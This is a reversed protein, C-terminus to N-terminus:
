RGFILFDLSDSLELDISYLDKSFRSLIRGTPTTDFFSMPANLVSDLANKHLVNSAHIGFRALFFSRFFTFFGLTFAALAYIGLYFARSNREYNPDSTWYSVWATSFLGNASCFIFVVVIFFFQSFGGGALIYKKYVDWAVAGVNREEDSVIGENEKNADLKSDKKDMKGLSIISNSRARSSAEESESVSEKVIDFEELLRQVAGNNKSLEDYSGQELIRGEGLAAISDCFRLFQLQNTALIRTKGKLLKVICQDFLLKGVEPDLASLPDDLLIIDAGSYAARAISVRQRQGGSLNIGNEGIETMDGFDLLAFDHTLQCARIIEDYKDKEYPQGFTINDRLTANLIWPTQAAYAVSGKLGISGNRIVTENLFASCLTTKGTGVRGVIACLEGPAISLNVDRLIAKPYRLNENTQMEADLDVIVDSVKKASKNSKKSAKSSKSGKSGVSSADDDDTTTIPVNPDSWYITIDKVKLEGTKLSEDMRKYIGTNADDKASSNEDVALSEDGSKIEELRLFSEVRQASVQAQAVLALSMPYFLLPFRLQDFAVLAAFLTSANITAGDYGVAYVVFSVVAVIVPLSSMYARSFGRLYAQKSLFELETNRSGSIVQKFSDEWTYMKVCRIGQVAENTTKVRDDTYKVMERNIGFLKKMIVGQSPAALIMVGLGAFCPWGILTYLITLYGIIQFLGDWLVHLNPVVQEIKTSDVQMLNILEGLTKGNRASSSLRLAKNYVAVSVAVRTQYGARYVTQFYLNETIAKLAMGVFLLASLWYGRYRMHWPDEPDIEGRQTQEMFKLLANLILPFSFQLSTNFLKVFGAAVFRRGIVARVAPIITATETPQANWAQEFPPFIIKGMDMEPLPLLDEQELARNQKHLDSARSFLPQAWHLMIRSFINASMEPSPENNDTQAPSPASAPSSDLVVEELEEEIENIMEKSTM